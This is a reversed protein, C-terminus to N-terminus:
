QRARAELLTECAQEDAARQGGFHPHFAASGRSSGARGGDSLPAHVAYDVVSPLRPLGGHCGGTGLRAPPWLGSALGLLRALSGRHVCASQAPLGLHSLDLAQGAYRRRGDRVLAAGHMDCSRDGRRARWLRATCSLVWRVPRKPAFRLFQTREFSSTCVNRESRRSTVSVLPMCGANPVCSSSMPPCTGPYLQMRNGPTAGLDPHDPLFLSHLERHEVGVLEISFCEIRRIAVEFMSDDVELRAQRTLRRAQGLAEIRHTREHVVADVSGCELEQLIATYAQDGQAGSTVVVGVQNSRRLQADGHNAHRLVRRVGDGLVGDGEHQREISLNM